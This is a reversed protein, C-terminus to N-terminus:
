EKLIREIESEINIAPVKYALKKPDKNILNDPPLFIKNKLADDCM